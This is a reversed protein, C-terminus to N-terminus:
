ASIASESSTTSFLNLSSSKKIKQDLAVTMLVAIILVAVAAEVTITAAEISSPAHM